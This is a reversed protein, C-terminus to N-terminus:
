KLRILEDLLKAMENETVAQIGAERERIYTLDTVLTRVIGPVDAYHTNEHVSRLAKLINVLCRWRRQYDHRAESGRATLSVETENEPVELKHLKRNHKSITRLIGAFWQQHRMDYRQVTLGLVELRSGMVELIGELEGEPFLVNYLQLERLNEVHRISNLMSSKQIMYLLSYDMRKWWSVRLCHLNPLGGIFNTMHTETGESITISLSKLRPFGAMQSMIKKVIASNIRIDLWLHTLVPRVHRPIALTDKVGDDIRVDDLKELHPVMNDSIVCPLSIVRTAPHELIRLTTPLFDGHRHMGCSIRLSSLSPLISYLEDMRKNGRARTVCPCEESAPRRSTEYTLTLCRVSNPVTKLTRLLKNWPVQVTLTLSLHKSHHIHKLANLFNPDSITIEILNPDKRSFHGEAYASSASIPTTLKSYEQLEDVTKLDQTVDPLLIRSAVGRAVFHRIFNLNSLNSANKLTSTPKLFVIKAIRQLVAIPLTGPSIKLTMSTKTPRRQDM